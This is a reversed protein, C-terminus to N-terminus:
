DKVKIVAVVRCYFAIVLIAVRVGQERFSVVKEVAMNRVNCPQFPSVIPVRLDERFRDWYTILPFLRVFTSGLVMPVIVRTSFEFGRPDEECGGLDFM